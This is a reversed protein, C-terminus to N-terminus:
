QLCTHAVAAHIMEEKPEKNPKYIINQQISNSKGQNTFVSFNIRHEEISWQSCM